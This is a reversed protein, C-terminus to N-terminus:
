KPVRTWLGVTSFTGLLDLRGRGRAWGSMADWYLEVEWEYDRLSLLRADPVPPSLQHKQAFAAGDHAFAKHLKTECIAQLQVGWKQTQRQIVEESKAERDDLSTAPRERQLFTWIDIPCYPCFTAGWADLAFFFCRSEHLWKKECDQAGVQVHPYWFLSAMMDKQDFKKKWAQYLDCAVLAATFNQEQVQAEAQALEKKQAAFDKFKHFRRAKANHGRQSASSGGFYCNVVGDGEQVPESKTCQAAESRPRKQVPEGPLPHGGQPKRSPRCVEKASDDVSLGAQRLARMYDSM